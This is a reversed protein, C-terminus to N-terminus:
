KSPNSESLRWVRQQGRGKHKDDPVSVIWPSKARQRANSLQKTTYGESKAAEALQKFSASEHESLYEVVWDIVENSSAHEPKMAEAQAANKESRVDDVTKDTPTIRTVIGVPKHDGDDTDVYRTEFEYTYSPKDSRGKVKVLQMVRTGDKAQDLSVVIRPKNTFAASGGVAQKASGDLSKNNHHVGVILIDAEAGWKNLPKFVKNVEDLAYLNVGPMCDALADFVVMRIDNQECLRQLMPVDAPLDVTDYDSSSVNENDNTVYTFLRQRMVNLSVGHAQMAQKVMGPDEESMIFLVGYPQGAWVGETTGLLVRAALQEVVSSKGVDNPGSFLIAGLGAYLYDVQQLRKTHFDAISRLGHYDNRGKELKVGWGELESIHRVLEDADRDARMSEM